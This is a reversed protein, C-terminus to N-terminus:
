YDDRFFTAREVHYDPPLRTTIYVRMTSHKTHHFHHYHHYSPNLTM